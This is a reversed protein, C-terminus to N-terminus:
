ERGKKLRYQGAESRKIEVAPFGRGRAEDAAKALRTRIVDFSSQRLLNGGEAETLTPIGHGFSGRWFEDLEQGYKRELAEHDDLIVYDAGNHVQGTFIAPTVMRLKPPRIAHIRTM